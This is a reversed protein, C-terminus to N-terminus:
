VEVKPHAVLELPPAERQRRADICPRELQVGPQSHRLRRHLLRQAVQAIARRRLHRPPSAAALDAPARAAALANEPWRCPPLVSVCCSTFFKKRVGSRVSHRLNVSSMM